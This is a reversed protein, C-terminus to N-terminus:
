WPWHRALDAPDDGPSVVVVHAVGDDVVLLPGARSALAMAAALAATGSPKRFGLDRVARDLEVPEDGDVGDVGLSVEGLDRGGTSACTAPDPCSPLDRAPDHGVVRFWPVGHCGAERFASLVQAVTPLERAPPPEEPLGLSSGADAAWGLAGDAAAVHLPMVLLTWSM